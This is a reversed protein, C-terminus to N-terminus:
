PMSILNKANYVETLQGTRSSGQDDYFYSGLLRDDFRQRVTSYLEQTLPVCKAATCIATANDLYFEVFRRVEPRKTSAENVYIFIPRGLPSYESVEISAPSPEIAKGTSPNIIKLAKIRDRNEFYYSAGFFGLSFKEGAIGNVLMLDEESPTVDSRIHGEKGVVTEKFFDFTGSDTGPIFLKFAEDPYSPDLDKWTKLAIDANFIRKLEEVGIETIWTNEAHVCVTIGDYAIPLEMFRIGNKKCQELESLKIPRSADAIDIEGKVLESFGGGTGKKGVTVAVMPFKERFMSGAAESIPYVTSSGDIKVAGELASTGPVKATSMSESSQGVGIDPAPSCGLSITFMVSALLSVSRRGM